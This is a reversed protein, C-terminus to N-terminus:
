VYHERSWLNQNSPDITNKDKVITDLSNIEDIKLDLSAKKSTDLIKMKLYNYKSTQRGYLKIAIM